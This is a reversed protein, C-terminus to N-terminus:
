CCYNTNHSRGPSSLGSFLQQQHSLNRCGSRFDDESNLSYYCKDTSSAMFNTREVHNTMKAMTTNASYSRTFNTRLGQHTEIRRYNTFNTSRTKLDTNNLRDTLLGNTPKKYAMCSYTTELAGTTTSM